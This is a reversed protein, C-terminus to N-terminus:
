QHKNVIKTTAAGTQLDIFSTYLSVKNDPDLSEWLAKTFCNICAYDLSVTKPEGM